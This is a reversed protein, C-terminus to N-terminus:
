LLVKWLRELPDAVERRHLGAVKERL